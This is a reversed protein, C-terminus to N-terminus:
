ATAMEGTALDAPEPLIHLGANSNAAQTLEELWARNLAPQRSGSYSYVLTAQPHLWVATRGDGVSADNRWTFLFSEGRRLKQSIVM